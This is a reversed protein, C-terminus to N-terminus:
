RVQSTPTVEVRGPDFRRGRTTSPHVRVRFLTRIIQRRVVLGATGDTELQHWAAHLDQATLLGAVAPSPASREALSRELREIEPTLRSELRGLMTASLQGDVCEETAEGLRARLDQLRAFSPDLEDSKAIESADLIAARVDDRALYALLTDVVVEDVRAKSATVSMCAEQRCGYAGYEMRPSSYTHKLRSGCESCEAINTLLHSPATGRPTTTRRGPDTLRARLRRWEAEQLIGPWSAKGIVKGQHQRLGAIAPGILIQRLTLPQWETVVHEPKTTARPKQPTPIGRTNLDRCVARLTEGALLRQAAERVVAAQDEDIFQGLLARTGPDYERRYGYPIRGHPKGSEAQIRVARLIRDRSADVEREALLADLATSFRDDARSLDYVRGSYAYLVNHKECESRLAVYASLDRQARSAEWAVLVDVKRDRVVALAETYGDRPRTAYRSASRDSDTVVHTVTWGERRCWARCEQEQEKVSRLRQKPDRSVRTYILARM